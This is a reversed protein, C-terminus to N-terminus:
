NREKVIRLLDSNCEEEFDLNSEFNRVANMIDNTVIFNDDALNEEVLKIVKSDNIMNSHDCKASSTEKVKYLGDSDLCDCSIVSFEQPIEASKNYLYKSGSKSLISCYEVLQIKQKYVKKGQEYKDFIWKLGVLLSSWSSVTGDGGKWITNINEFKSPNRKSDFVFATKTPLFSGYVLITDVKPISLKNTKSIKEQHSTMLRIVEMFEEVSEFILDTNIVIDKFQYKYNKYFRDILDTMKEDSYPYPSFQSLFNGLCQPNKSECAFNFFPSKGDFLNSQPLINAEVKRNKLCFKEITETAEEDNNSRVVVTPCNIIDYMDNRCPFFNPVRETSKKFDAIRKLYKPDSGLKELNCVEDLLSPFMPTNDSKNSFLKNFKISKSAIEKRDCNNERCSKELDIRESIAERLRIYKKDHFISFLAPNPKLEYMPPFFPSLLKQAFSSLEVDLLDFGSFNVNADFEKSGNLLIEVAKSAGAFPPSIAIFKKIKSLFKSDEGILEELANLCGFSHAVIVVKKNTNRYLREVQSKLIKKFEYNTTVFRRFDFPIGAMSFGERYGMHRFREHMKEFALSAGSNIVYELYDPMLTKGASVISRIARLGCQSQKKTNDTGGYFVIKVAEDHPCVNKTKEQTGFFNERASNKKYEPCETEKNQYKFFYSFCSNYKNEENVRLTFPSDFLAPWIVHEEFENKCVTEGCFLRMNILKDKNEKFKKCDIQMMLRTSYMGPIMVVPNCHGLIFRLNTSSPKNIGNQKLVETVLNKDFLCEDSDYISMKVHKKFGNDKYNDNNTFINDFTSKDELNFDPMELFELKDNEKNVIFSIHILLLVSILRKTFQKSNRKFM